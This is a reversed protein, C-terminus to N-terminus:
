FIPEEELTECEGSDLLSFSELDVVFAVLEGAFVINITGVISIRDGVSLHERDPFSQDLEIFVRIRHMIDSKAEIKLSHEKKSFKKIQVNWQIRKGKCYQKAAKVEEDTELAFIYNAAHEFTRLDVKHEITQQIEKKKKFFRM